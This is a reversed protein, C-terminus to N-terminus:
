SETEKKDRTRKREIERSEVKDSVRERQWDEGQCHKGFHEIAVLAPEQGRGVGLWQKVWVGGRIHPQM